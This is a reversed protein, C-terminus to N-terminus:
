AKPLTIIMTSLLMNYAVVFFTILFPVYDKWQEFYSFYIM